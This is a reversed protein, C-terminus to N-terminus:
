RRLRDHCGRHAKPELDTRTTRTSPARAPSARGASVTLSEARCGAPRSPPPWKPRAWRPPTPIPSYDGSFGWPARCSLPRSDRDLQLLPLKPREALRSRADHTPSSTSAEPTTARRAFTASQPALAPRSSRPEASPTGEAGTLAGAFSTIMKQLLDADAAEVQKRFWTPADMGHTAM